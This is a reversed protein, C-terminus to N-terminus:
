LCGQIEAYASAERARFLGMSNERTGTAAIPFSYIWVWGIYM